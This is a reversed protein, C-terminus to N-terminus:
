RENPYLTATHLARRQRQRIRIKHRLRDVLWGLALGISAIKLARVGYGRQSFKWLDPNVFLNQLYCVGLLYSSTAILPALLLYHKHAFLGGILLSFSM